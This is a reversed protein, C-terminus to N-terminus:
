MQNSRFTMNWHVYPLYFHVRLFRASFSVCGCLALFAATKIFDNILAEFDRAPYAAEMYIRMDRTAYEMMVTHKLHMAYRTLFM